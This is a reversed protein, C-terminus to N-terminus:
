RGRVARPVPGRLWAPRRGGSSRSSQPTLETKAASPDVDLGTEGHLAPSAPPRAGGCASGTSGGAAGHGRRGVGQRGWGSRAGNASRVAQRGPVAHREPGRRTRPRRGGLATGPCGRGRVPRAHDHGRLRGRREPPSVRIVVRGASSAPFRRGSTPSAVGLSTNGPTTSSEVVRFASPRPRRCFPNMRMGAGRGVRVASRIM